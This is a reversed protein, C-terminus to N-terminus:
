LDMLFVELAPGVRESSGTSTHTSGNAVSSTPRGSPGRSNCGSARSWDSARPNTTFIEAEVKVQDFEGFCLDLVATLAERMIGKGWYPKGLWYGVDGRGPEVSPRASIMGLAIGPSGPHGGWGPRSDGLSFRERRVTRDTGAPHIWPRPYRTPAMGSSVPRSRSAIEGGVLAFLTPADAETPCELLLRETEIRYTNLHARDPGRGTMRDWYASPEDM